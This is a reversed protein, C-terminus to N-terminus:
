KKGENQGTASKKNSQALMRPSDGNKAADTVNSDATDTEQLQAEIDHIDKLTLQKTELLHSVLPRVSGGFLNLLDDILRHHIAKRTIAPAFIFANGIKKAKKVAGKEELRYVITQVTTYALDKKEPLAEQIERVSASGLEWLVDMVEMEFRTLKENKKM